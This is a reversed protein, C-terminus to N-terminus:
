AFTLLLLALRCFQEWVEIERALEQFPNNKPVFKAGVQDIITEIAQVNAISLNGYRRAVPRSM